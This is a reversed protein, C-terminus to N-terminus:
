DIHRDGFTTNRLLTINKDGKLSHDWIYRYVVFRDSLRRNEYGGSRALECNIFSEALRHYPECQDCEVMARCDGCDLDVNNHVENFRWHRHRKYVQMDPYGDTSNLQYDEDAGKNDSRVQPLLYGTSETSNYLAIKDFFQDIDKIFVCGECKEVLLDVDTYRYIYERFSPDVASFEVIFDHTGNCYTGFDCNTDNMKWYGEPTLAYSNYRDWNYARVNNYSHFSIWYNQELDYSLTFSGQTNGDNKTILFRNLRPDVGMAYYSTGAKQENKCETENCFPLHEKFFNFSTKDSLTDIQGNFLRYIKAAEQDVWFYGYQTNIQHNHHQLGAYGEVPGGGGTYQLFGGTGLIVEGISSAIAVRGHALPRFVDTTHYYLNGNSDLINTLKGESPDITIKNRPKINQYADDHSGQVQEESYYITNNTQNEDECDDCQCVYYPDPM